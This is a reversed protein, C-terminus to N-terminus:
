RTRTAGLRATLPTRGVSPMRAAAAGGTVAAPAQALARVRGLLEEPEFPKLLVDCAREQLFEVRKGIERRAGSTVLIPLSATTREARLRDILEFGAADGYMYIDILAADCRAGAIVRAAEELDLTTVPEVGIEDTSLVREVMRIFQIDDDLVAIRREFPGTSLM